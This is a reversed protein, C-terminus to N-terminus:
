DINVILTIIRSAPSSRLLALRVTVMACDLQGGCSSRFLLLSFRFYHTLGRIDDVDEFVPAVGDELVNALVGDEHLLEGDVVVGKVLEHYADLFIEGGSYM